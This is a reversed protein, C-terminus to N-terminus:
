EDDSSYQWGIKAAVLNQSYDSTPLNSSYDSYEYEFLLFWNNSLNLELEAGLRLRDDDRIEGISPTIADYDRLQYRANFRAAAPLGFMSLKHTYRARLTHITRDLSVAEADEDEFKYGMSWYRRSGDLFFYLDAGLGHKDSNRDPFNELEKDTYTYDVRLFRTKSLLRGLNLSLQGLTLFKESDLDSVIYRVAGGTNYGGIKTSYDASLFQTDLDFQDFEDYADKSYSYGLGFKSDKNLDHEYDLNASLSFLSDGDATERDLEEVAVNSDYEAGLTIKASFHNNSDTERPSEAACLTAAMFAGIILVCINKM